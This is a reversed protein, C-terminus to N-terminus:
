KSSAAVWQGVNDREKDVGRGECVARRVKGCRRSSPGADYMDSSLKEGWQQKSLRPCQDCRKENTDLM